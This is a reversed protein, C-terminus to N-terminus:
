NNLKKEWLKINTKLRGSLITIAPFYFQLENCLPLVINTEFNIENQFLDKDNKILHISETINCEEEKKIQNQYEKQLLEVGNLLINFPKFSNNLDSLHLLGQCLLIQKNLQKDFLLNKGKNLKEVLINHYFIDTAIISKVIIKKFIIKEECLLNDLLRIDSLEMIYMGFECHHKELISENNYKEALFSQKNIEFQNNHGPHDIDHILASIMLSFLNIEDIQKGIDMTKIMMYLFHVVCVAHAFNHYPNNDHYYISVHCIFSHLKLKDIKDIFNTKIDINPKYFLDDFMNYAMLILESKTKHQYFNFDFNWMYLQDITNHNISIKNNNM